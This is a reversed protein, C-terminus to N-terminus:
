VPRSEIRDLWSRSRFRTHIARVGAPPDITGLVFCCAGSGSLLWPQGSAACHAFLSELAPYARLAAAALRNHLCGPLDAALDAAWAVAGRAHRPGREEARLAAFVAPTACHLPPVLLTVAQAPVDDLPTLIEGRGSAHATGGLLFFPVDSGLRRAIAHCDDSGPPDPDLRCLARLVAAADSSGGGLGGGAPLRKDLEIRLGGLGPRLALYAEAARWALNGAGTPLSPDSCRLALGSAATTVQVSDAWELTQFVTELLHYGATDRGLIELYLNCKAPAAVCLTAM